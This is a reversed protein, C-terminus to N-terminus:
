RRSRPSVCSCSPAGLPSGGRCAMESWPRVQVTPSSTSTSRIWFRGAVPAGAMVPVGSTPCVSVASMDAM